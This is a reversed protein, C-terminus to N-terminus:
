IKVFIYNFSKSFKSNSNQLEHNQKKQVFEFNNIQLIKLVREYQNKFNENIEVSISKIKKDKLFHGAGELILHEIGDVDIKIYDPIELIKNNLINEINKGLLKYKMNYNQYKGEFNYKEGFSNLAGGERFENDQMMQFKDNKDSLPNCFVKVRDEMRNISINRTLSRLNNSSPEFSVIKCNSHTIAAFISYLGINAGIDWFILEKKSDFSRIWDLTEPEKTFFTNLRYEILSNPMFFIVEKKNILINKYSDEILFEKFRSMFSRKTLLNIIYDLIKLVKYFYLSFNSFM